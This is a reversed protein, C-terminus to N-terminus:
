SILVLNLGIANFLQCMFHRQYASLYAIYNFHVSVSIKIRMIMSAFYWVIVHFLIFLYVFEYDKDEDGQLSVDGKSSSRINYSQDKPDELNLYDGEEGERYSFLPDFAKKGEHM